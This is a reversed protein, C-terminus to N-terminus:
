RRDGMREALRERHRAGLDEEGLRYRGVLESVRDWATPDADSQLADLAALLLRRVVDSRSCRTRRAEDDLRGLLEEPLSLSVRSTM